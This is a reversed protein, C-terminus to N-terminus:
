GVTRVGIAQLRERAEVVDHAARSLTETLSGPQTSIELQGGPEFTVLSTEPLAASFSSRMTDLSPRHFDEDEAFTLWEIEAGLVRGPTSFSREAVRRRAALDTLVQSPSPM